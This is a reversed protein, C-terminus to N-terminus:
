WNAALHRSRSRTVREVGAREALPMRVVIPVNERELPQHLSRGGGRGHRSALNRTAQATSVGSLAAKEKDVTLNYRVQDREMYWDTDVV